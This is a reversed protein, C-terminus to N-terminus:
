TTRNIPWPKTLVQQGRFEPLHTEVADTLALKGEEALMLIGLCVIPKTMSHIQFINDTQMPQKTDFDTYGVADLAAVHGHRAVLTVIGAAQGSEVFQQMRVPIRALRAPDLGTKATDKVIPLPPPPAAILAFAAAFFPLLGLLKSM